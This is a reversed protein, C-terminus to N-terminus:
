SARADTRAAARLTAASPKVSAYEQEPYKAVLEGNGGVVWSHNPVHKGTDVNFRRSCRHCFFQPDGGRYRLPKILCNPCRGKSDIEM